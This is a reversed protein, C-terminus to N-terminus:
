KVFIRKIRRAGGFVIRRLPRIGMWIVAYLRYTKKGCSRWKGNRCYDTVVAVIQDRRINKEVHWQNDGCMTYSDSDIGVIRHLVFTGNDRRYLPIDGKKLEDAKALRVRSVRDKLMPLMSNGTVTIDASGGNDVIESILPTLESMSLQVTTQDKM